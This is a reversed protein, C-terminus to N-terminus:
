RPWQDAIIQNIRPRSLGSWEAILTVPVSQGAAELVIKDRVAIEDELEARYGLVARAAEELRIQLSEAPRRIRSETTAAM